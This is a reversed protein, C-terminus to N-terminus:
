QGLLEPNEYINGIVELELMTRETFDLLQEGFSWRGKQNWKVQIPKLCGGGIVIDAEYIEKGNKDYLGTFQMINAYQDHYDKIFSDFDFYLMGDDFHWARFKIVRQM